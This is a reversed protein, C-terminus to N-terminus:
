QKQIEWAKEKHVNLGVKERLSNSRHIAKLHSLTDTVRFGNNHKLLHLLQHKTFLFVAFGSLTNQRETSHEAAHVPLTVM